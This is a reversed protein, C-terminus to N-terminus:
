SKMVCFNVWYHLQTKPKKNKSDKSLTSFQSTKIRLHQDMILNGVKIIMMVQSFTTMMTMMMTKTKRRLNVVKTICDKSTKMMMTKSTKNRIKRLYTKVKSHNMQVEEVTISMGSMMIMMKMM